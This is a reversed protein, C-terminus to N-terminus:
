AAFPIVKGRTRPPRVSWFARAKAKTTARYYSEWMVKKDEHGSQIVLTDTDNDHAVLWYSCFSHRMGQKIWAVNTRGALNVGVVRAWNARHRRRLEDQTFPAVRGIVSGGRRRYEFLWAFANPAVDVFRTRSRKTIAARLKLQHEKAEWDLDPWELRPLEGRPRVGCFFGFVRYPLLALDNQLCDRLLAEVIPPEFIEVEKRELEEAELKAAPNSLLYDRKWGWGLVAHLYRRFQNRVSPSFPALADELMRTTLDSAIVEHLTVLKTLCWRMQYLHAPSRRARSELYRLFLERFPISATRDQHVKLYGEVAERLSLGPHAALLQRCEDSELLQQASLGPLNVRQNDRRARLAECEALAEQQTARYLQQRSGTESLYAPVNVRWCALGAKLRAPVKVPKFAAERAM